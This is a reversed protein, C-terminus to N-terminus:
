VNKNFCNKIFLKNLVFFVAMFESGYAKEPYLIRHIVDSCTSRLGRWGYFFLCHRLDFLTVIVIYKLVSCSRKCTRLWDTDDDEPILAIYTPLHTGLQVAESGLVIV